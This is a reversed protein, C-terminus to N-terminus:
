QEMEEKWSWFVNDAFGGFQNNNVKVGAKKFPEGPKNSKLLTTGALFPTKEDVSLFTAVELQNNGLPKVQRFVAVDHPVSNETPEKEDFYRTHFGSKVALVESLSMDKGIFDYHYICDNSITGNHYYEQFIMAMSGNGYLDVFSVYPKKLPYDSPKDGVGLKRSDVEVPEKTVFQSKPDYLFFFFCDGYIGLREYYAVYLELSQPGQVKFVTHLVDKPVPLYRPNEDKLAELYFDKAHKQLALQVKTPLPVHNGATHDFYDFDNDSRVLAQTISSFDASSPPAALLPTELAVALTLFFWVVCYYCPFFKKM